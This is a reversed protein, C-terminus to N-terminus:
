DEFALRDGFIRRLSAVDSRTLPNNWLDLGQLRTPWPTDAILKSIEGRIGNSALKLWRLKPLRDPNQLIARAGDIGLDNNGLDIWELNAAAESFVLERLSAGTVFTTRLNLFRVTDFARWRILERMGDDRIPNVSLDIEELKPWGNKPMRAFSDASVKSSALTLRRLNRLNRSRLIWFAGAEGLESHDIRLTQLNRLVHSGGLTRGVEHTVVDSSIELTELLELNPSRLIDPLDFRQCLGGVMSLERLRIPSNRFVDGVAPVGRGNWYTSNLRLVELNPFANGRVIRNIDNGEVEDVDSLTLSRIRELSSGSYLRRNISSDLVGCLVIERVRAFWPNSILAELYRRDITPTPRSEDHPIRYDVPRTMGRSSNGLVFRAIPLNELLRFTHANIGQYGRFVVESPVGLRFNFGVGHCEPIEVIWQTALRAIIAREQRRMPQRQPDTDGLRSSLVQLRILESRDAHGNEELWDAFILHLLEDRPSEAIARLFAAEENM